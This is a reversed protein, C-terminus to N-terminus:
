SNWGAHNAAQQSALQDCRENGPNGNHGKVWRFDVKQHKAMLDLLQEWLDPNKAPQGDAKYWGNRRWSKAWGNSAGNVVYRSDSYIRVDRGSGLFELARIAGMLEMRNNTTQFEGGALEVKAKGCEVIAAWGGPGPNEQCAGDTHVTVLGTKPFNAAADPQKAPAPKEESLELGCYPCFGNQEDLVARDIIVGCCPCSVESGDRVKRDHCDKCETRQAQMGENVTVAEDENVLRGCAECKLDTFDADLFVQGDSEDVFATVVDPQQEQVSAPAVVKQLYQEPIIASVYCRLLEQEDQGFAILGSAGNRLVQYEQEKAYRKKGFPAKPAGTINFSKASDTVDEQVFSFVPFGSVKDTYLTIVHITM